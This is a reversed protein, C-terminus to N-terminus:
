YIPALHGTGPPVQRVTRREGEEELQGGRQQLVVWPEGEEGKDRTAATDGRSHGGPITAVGVAGVEGSQEAEHEALLVGGVEEEGAGREDLGHQLERM